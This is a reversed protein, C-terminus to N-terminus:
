GYATCIAPSQARAASPQVASPQGYSAASRGQGARLAPLRDDDTRWLGRPNGLPQPRHRLRGAGHLDLTRSGVRSRRRRRSHRRRYDVKFPDFKIDRVEDHEVRALYRDVDEARAIGIFIPKAADNSTATIRLRVLGAELAGTVGGVKLTETSLAYLSTQYHHTHTVFYGSSDRNTELGVIAAIAGGILARAALLGLTGSHSGSWAGVLL